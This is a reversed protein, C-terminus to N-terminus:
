VPPITSGALMVTAGPPSTVIGTANPLAAGAPPITMVSALLLEETAATYGALTKTGSPEVVATRPTVESVPTLAPDAVIVADAGPYPVALVWTCTVDPPVAVVILKQGPLRDSEWPVICFRVSFRDAGAGAPKTTVRLELLVVTAVTGESTLRPVPAALTDTGTVPTPAPDTVRVALAGFRALM